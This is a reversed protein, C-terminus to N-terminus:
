FWFVDKAIAPLFLFITQLFNFSYLCGWLHQPHLLLVYIAMNIPM